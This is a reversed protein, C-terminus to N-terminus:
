TKLPDLGRISLPPFCSTANEQVESSILNAPSNEVAQRTANMFASLFFLAFVLCLFAGLRAILVVFASRCFFTFGLVISCSIVVILFLTRLVFVFFRVLDSFVTFLLQRKRKKQPNEAQVAWKLKKYM